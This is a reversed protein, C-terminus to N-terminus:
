RDILEATAVGTTGSAAASGFAESVAADIKAQTEEDIDVTEGEEWREVSIIVISTDEVTLWTWYMYYNGDGYNMVADQLTSLLQEATVSETEDLTRGFDYSLNSVGNDFAERVLAPITYMDELPVRNIYAYCYKYGEAAPFFDTNWDQNQPMSEDNLNFHGYKSSDIDSYVDVHYWEDDLKVLDWSHSLSSDHVVMCEIDLMQMFMRFTTAYGVCVAQHYKLVGFPNDVNDEADPVVQMSGSDFSLNDVMWGYIALEKEYPSMGDTIVENIVDEALSLTEKDQESLSSSDGSKYADSIQTTARIVYEGGITVDNEQAVDEANVGYTEDELALVRMYTFVSFVVLAALLVPTAIYFIKRLAKKM